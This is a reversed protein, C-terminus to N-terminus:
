FVADIVVALEPFSKNSSITHRPNGVLTTGSRNGCPCRRPDPGRPAPHVNAPHFANM